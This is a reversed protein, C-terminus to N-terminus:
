RLAWKDLSADSEKTCKLYARASLIQVKQKLKLTKVRERRKYRNFKELIINFAILRCEALKSAVDASKDDKLVAFICSFDTFCFHIVSKLM